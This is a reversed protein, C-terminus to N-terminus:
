PGFAAASVDKTLPLIPVNLCLKGNPLLVRAVEAWVGDLDDLYQAYSHLGIQGAVGYDVTHWYPPSTVACACWDDPLQRLVARSDGCVIRDVVGDLTVGDAQAPALHPAPTESGDGAYRRSQPADLTPLQSRIASDAAFRRNRRLKRTAPGTDSTRAM